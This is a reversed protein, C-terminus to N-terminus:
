CTLHLAAAANCERAKRNFEQCAQASPMASWAIGAAKLAPEVDEAVRMRGNAGQGIILLDPKATLIEVLDAEQLLHGEERWWGTILRGPLIIVDKQYTEGSITIQGFQYADIHFNQMSDQREEM